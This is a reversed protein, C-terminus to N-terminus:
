FTYSFWGDQRYCRTHVFNYVGRIERIFLPVQDFWMERRALGAGGFSASRRGLRPPDDVPQHVEGPRTALPAHQGLVEARPRRDVMVVTRPAPISGQLLNM